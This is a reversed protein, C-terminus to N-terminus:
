ETHFCNRSNHSSLLFTEDHFTQYNFKKVKEIKRKRKSSVLFWASHIIELIVVAVLIEAFDLNSQPILLFHEFVIILHQNQNGWSILILVFYIRSRCRIKHKCKFIQCYRFRWILDHSWSIPLIKTYFV